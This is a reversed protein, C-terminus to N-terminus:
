KIDNIKKNIAQIYEADKLLSNNHKWLGSSHEFDNFDLTLSVPSHDSQYSHLISCSSLFNSLSSSILYFDLRAQQIPRFKRWTYRKDDPNLQRFPDILDRKAVIDLIDERAAKNNIHKYNFIDLDPKMVINFDGCIM